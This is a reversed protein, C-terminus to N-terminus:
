KKIKNIVDSLSLGREEAIKRIEEFEPKENVTGYGESRKVTVPGFESDTKKFERNLTYRKFANERIGLTSTHKFLAKVLKEKDSPRCLVSLMVGPRNKKM